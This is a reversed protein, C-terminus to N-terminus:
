LPPPAWSPKALNEATYYTDTSRLEAWLIKSAVWDVASAVWSLLARLTAEFLNRDRSM